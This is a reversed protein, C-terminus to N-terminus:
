TCGCEECDIRLRLVLTYSAEKGPLINIYAESIPIMPLLVIHSQASHLKQNM